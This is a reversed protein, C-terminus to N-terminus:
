RPLTASAVGIKRGCGPLSIEIPGDTTVNVKANCALHARRLNISASKVNTADVDLRNAVPKSPAKGWTKRQITFAIPGLNGGMLTGSGLQTGSAPPDAVGFGHSFV